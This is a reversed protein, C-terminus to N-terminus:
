RLGEQDDEGRQIQPARRVPIVTGPPPPLEGTPRPPFRDRLTLGAGIGAGLAVVLLFLLVWPLTIVLAGVTMQMTICFAQVLACLLAPALVVVLLLGFLKEM